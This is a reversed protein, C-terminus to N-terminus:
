ARREAKVGDNIGLYGLCIEGKLKEARENGPKRQSLM